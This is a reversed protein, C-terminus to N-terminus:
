LDKLHMGLSDKTEADYCLTASQKSYSTDIIKGFWSPSPEASQQEDHAICPMFKALERPGLEHTWIRTPTGRGDLFLIGRWPADNPRAEALALNSSQSPQAYLRENFILILDDHLHGADLGGLLTFLTSKGLGSEGPVLWGSNDIVLGAAHILVGCHHTAAEHIVRRLLKDIRQNFSKATSISEPNLRARWTSQQPNSALLQVRPGTWETLCQVDITSRHLSESSTSECRIWGAYTTRLESSFEYPVWLTIHIPGITIEIADQSGDRSLSQSSM